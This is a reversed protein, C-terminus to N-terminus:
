AAAEVWPLRDIDEPALGAAACVERELEKALQQVIPPLASDPYRVRWREFRADLSVVEQVARKDAYAVIRTEFSTAAVLAEYSNFNALLWVPHAAVADRLEAYGNRRLWEGGAAGHRLAKLPDDAPLAKDLDHLVAAAEVLTM